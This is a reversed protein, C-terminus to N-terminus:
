LTEFFLDGREDEFGLRYGAVSFAQCPFGSLVINAKPLEKKNVEHIDLTSLTNNFNSRYTLSAKEDFENAWITEFKGTQEFGLDLGGVGAFLSIARYKM